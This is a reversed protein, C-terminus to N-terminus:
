RRLARIGLFHLIEQAEEKSYYDTVAEMGEAQLEEELAECLETSNCHTLLYFVRAFRHAAGGKELKKYEINTSIIIAVEDFKWELESTDIVIDNVIKYVDTSVEEYKLGYSTLIRETREKLSYVEGM